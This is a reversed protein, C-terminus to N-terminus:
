VKYIGVSAEPYAQLLFEFDATEGSKLLSIRKEASSGIPALPIDEITSTGIVTKELDLKVGVDRLNSMALNKIKVQTEAQAGPTITGPTVTVSNISITKQASNITLPLEKEIWNNATDDSKYRVKLYNTGEIAASDIRVRYEALYDEQEELEGIQKDAREDISFPYNDRFELVTNTSAGDGENAVKFIITVYSGPQAPVPTYSQVSIDIESREAAFAQGALMSTMAVLAFLTAITKNM